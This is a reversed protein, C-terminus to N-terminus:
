EGKISMKLLQFSRSMFKTGFKYVLENQALDGMERDIDVSNINNPNASESDLAEPSKEKNRGLVFHAPNTRTGNTKTKELFSNLEKTFDIDKPKYGPTSVNAISSSVLKQKFSSLDLVKKLFPINTRNTILNKIPEM